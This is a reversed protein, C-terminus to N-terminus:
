LLITTCTFTASPTRLSLCRSCTRRQQEKWYSQPCTSWRTTWPRSKRQSRGKVKSGRAEEKSGQGTDRKASVLNKVKSQNRGKTMGEGKNKLKRKGKGKSKGKCKGKQKSTMNGKGKGQHRGPIRRKKVARIQKKRILRHTYKIATIADQAKM